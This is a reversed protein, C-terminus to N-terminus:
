YVDELYRGATKLDPITLGLPAAIDAFAAKVGEAMEKGGCVLIQAGREIMSRLGVADARVRDQVYCGDIVRSFATTLGTLRSDKELQRLTPAYLFDSHPDRGGWYLVMPRRRHNGSAFGVLPAIGTGAGVLIIPSRGRRPRFDPNRRIFAEVSGGVGLGHLFESCVGGPQKRVCIELYGDDSSSALSYYRPVSTGPAVIGVLDGPKFRGLRSRKATGFPDPGIAFRFISTPAQVEAGYDTRGILPISATKPREAHHVLPLSTGLAAGVEVGWREFAQSSQRDITATAMFRSWGRDLLAAEVDLAYRCFQAFSQDGFGLVAFEPRRDGRYRSLRALFHKASSPASGDGHTAALLFLREARPYSRALSNMAATHVRHGAKTLAAHLAGAFGWTTNTESGVLIITDAVAARANGSLRPLGRRRRWWIATGSLAMVPVTLAALGLLLGLWWAGEGTHLLYIAEYLRQGFSNPIFDLLSGTAQDVFGVGAASTLTFVDAPDGPFPFVLERLTSLSADQLGALTGIAAPEGGDVGEPFPLFPSTGDGVVGFTVLTLYVGTMASLLLGAVAFRSVNVHLRQAGTGRALGFLRRWGGLRRVLMIAGSIALLGLAAAALGAVIRGADGLFLSRHLEEFFGFFGGTDYPGLAEGSAPDVISAAAVGEDTTAYVIVNGSATREIREVNEFRGAVASAVDAVTLGAGPSASAALTQAAPDVSLVAGTIAMFCVLVSAALAFVAHFRRLM